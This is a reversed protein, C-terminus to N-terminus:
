LKLDSRDLQRYTHQYFKELKTGCWPCFYIHAEALLSLPVDTYSLSAGLDLSRHQLIFEPPPGNKTFVFVALGRSGAFEFHEKFALCCWDM